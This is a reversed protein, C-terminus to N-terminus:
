VAEEAPALVTNFVLSQIDTAIAEITRLEDRQDCQVEYWHGHMACLARYENLVTEQFQQNEDFIDRTAPMSGKRKEVLVASLAVPLSLFIVLDERPSGMVEYEFEEVWRRFDPREQPPLGAGQYAITSIVYRNAVVLDNEALLQNLHPQQEYRDVIYPYAVLKPHCSDIEGLKGTLFEGRLFKGSLTEGASPYRIQGVSFGQERAAQILLETQTDKGAGDTGDLVVLKGM